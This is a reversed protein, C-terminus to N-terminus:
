DFPVPKIAPGALKTGPARGEALAAGFVSPVPIGCCDGWTAEGKAHAHGRHEEDEASPPAALPGDWQLISGFMFHQIVPLKGLVEARYMKIMGTNVKDWTKVQSTFNLVLFFPYQSFYIHKCSFHRGVYTLAVPSISIKDATKVTLPQRLSSVPLNTTGSVSDIFKICALYM